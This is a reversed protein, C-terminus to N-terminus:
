EASAPRVLKARRRDEDPRTHIRAVAKPKMFNPGGLAYTGLLIRCTKVAMAVINEVEIAHEGLAILGHNQLYVAKPPEGRGDIHRDLVERV